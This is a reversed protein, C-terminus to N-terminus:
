LNTNITILINMLLFYLEWKMRGFTKMEKEQLADVSIDYRRAIERNTTVPYLRAIEGLECTTLERYNRCM